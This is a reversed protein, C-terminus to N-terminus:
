HCSKLNIPNLREFTSILNTTCFKLWGSGLKFLKLWEQTWLIKTSFENERLFGCLLGISGSQVEEKKFKMYRTTSGNSVTYSKLFKM